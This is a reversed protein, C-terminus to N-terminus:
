RVSVIVPPEPACFLRQNQSFPDLSDEFGNMEVSGGPDAANLVEFSRLGDRLSRAEDIKGPLTGSHENKAEARRSNSSWAHRCM